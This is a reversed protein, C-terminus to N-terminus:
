MAKKLADALFPQPDTGPHRVAPLAVVRGKRHWYFSLVSARVPVITHAATGQHVYIAHKPIAIVRGELDRHRGHTGRQPRILSQLRGTSYNIGTRNRPIKGPGPAEAIAIANTKITKGYMYRGTMGQWSRFAHHFSSPDAVFVYNLPV